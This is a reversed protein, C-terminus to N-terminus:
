AAVGAVPRRARFLAAILDSQTVIGVLRNDGDVVPLIRLGQDSLLPVLEGLPTEARVSRVPATMTEEVLMRSFSDSAVGLGLLPRRPRAAVARDLLNARTVIGVLTRDAEIVPLAKVNHTRILEHARRLTTTRDATAVDTSMIDRCRIAGSRRDFAEIEAEHLIAALDAPDIDLMEARTKLAAEIDSTTVGIRDTPKADATHRILPQAVRHPYPRGRVLNHFVAAGVVLLGANLLVLSFLYGTGAEQFVAGNLVVTLAVAGSPPHLCRLRAMLLVTLVLAIPAAVIPDNLQTAVLGSLTAVLTGGIVSWPQSMPSAPFIFVLAATGGMPAILPVMWESGLVWRTALGAFLLGLGTGLIGLWPAIPTLPGIYPAIGRWRAILDSRM